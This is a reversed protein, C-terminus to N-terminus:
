HNETNYNNNNNTSKIPTTRASPSPPFTNPLPKINHVQPNSPTPEVFTVVKLTGKITGSVLTDLYINSHFSVTSEPVGLSNNNNNHHDKFLPGLRIVAYGGVQEIGLPDTFSCRILLHRTQLYGSNNFM